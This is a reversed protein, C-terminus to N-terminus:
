CDSLVACRSSCCGRLRWCRLRVRHRGRVSGFQYREAVVPTPCQGTERLCFWLRGPQRLNVVERLSQSGDNHALQIWGSFRHERQLVDPTPKSVRFDRLAKTGVKMVVRMSGKAPGECRCASIMLVAINVCCWDLRVELWAECRCCLLDRVFPLLM